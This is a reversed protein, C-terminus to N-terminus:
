KYKKLIKAVTQRTPEDHFTDILAQLNAHMANKAEDNGLLAEVAGTGISYAHAVNNLYNKAFESTFSTAEDANAANLKEIMWYYYHLQLCIDSGLLRDIKSMHNEYIKTSYAPRWFSASLVEHTFADGEYKESYKDLQLRQAPEHMYLIELLLSQKITHAEKRDLNWDYVFKSFLGLLFGLLINLIPDM